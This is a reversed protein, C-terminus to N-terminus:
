IIHFLTIPKMNNISSITKQEDNAPNSETQRQATRTACRHITRIAVIYTYEFVVIYM